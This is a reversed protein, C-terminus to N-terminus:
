GCRSRFRCSGGGNRRRCGGMAVAKGALAEIVGEGVHRELEGLRAFDPLWGDALVAGGRIVVPATVVPHCFTLMTGAAVASGAAGALVAGRRGLLKGPRVRLDGARFAVMGAPLGAAEGPPEAAVPSAHDAVPLYSSM